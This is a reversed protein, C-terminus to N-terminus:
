LMGPHPKRKADRKARRAAGSAVGGERGSKKLHHHACLAQLNAFSHDDDAHIHDVDTARAGCRRGTDTRVHQCVHGDRTLVVQRRAPWDQPLRSLRDSGEWNPM